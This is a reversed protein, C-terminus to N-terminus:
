SVYQKLKCKKGIKNGFPSDKKMYGQSVNRLKSLLDDIFWWYAAGTASKNWKEKSFNQLTFVTELNQLLIDFGFLTINFSSINRNEASCFELCLLLHAM